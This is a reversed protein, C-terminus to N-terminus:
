SSRRSGKTTPPLKGAKRALGVWRAASSHSGHLESAVARTPSGHQEAEQYVEAVQDLFEETVRRRRSSMIRRVEDQRVEPEVGKTFLGGTPEDVHDVLRMLSKVARERVDQIPYTRLDDGTLQQSPAVDFRLSTVLPVAEETLHVEAHASVRHDTSTYTVFYTDSGYIFTGVMVARMNDPVEIEPPLEWTTM